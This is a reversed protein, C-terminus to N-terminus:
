RMFSSGVRKLVTENGMWGGGRVDEFEDVGTGCAGMDDEGSCRMTRSLVEEM